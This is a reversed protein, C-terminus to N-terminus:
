DFYYRGDVGLADYIYNDIKLYASKVCMFVSLLQLYEDAGDVLRKETLAIHYCIMSKMKDTLKENAIISDILQSLLVNVPFGAMILENVKNRIDETKTNKNNICIGVINNLINTPIMNAMELVNNTTIKENQYSLNQLLMIGKRMDGNSISSIQRIAEKTINVNEKTAIFQLRNTMHEVDIAKFRFGVV